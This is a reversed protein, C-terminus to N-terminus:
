GIIIVTNIAVTLTILIILPWGNKYRTEADPVFDSFMFLGYTCLLTLLENILELRNNFRINYPRFYGTYLMVLSSHFLM